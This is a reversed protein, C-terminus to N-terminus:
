LPLIIPNNQDKLTNRKQDQMEPCTKLLRGNTSSDKRWVRGCSDCAASKPKKSNLVKSKHGPKRIDQLEETNKLRGVGIFHLTKEKHTRLTSPDFYVSLRGRVSIKTKQKTKLKTKRSKVQPM